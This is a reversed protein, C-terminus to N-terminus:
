CVYGIIFILVRGCDCDWKGLVYWLFYVFFGVNYYDSLYFIFILILVNMFFYLGVNRLM